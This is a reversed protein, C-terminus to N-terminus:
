MGITDFTVEDVPVADWDPTGLDIGLKGGASKEFHLRWLLPRELTLAVRPAGAAM